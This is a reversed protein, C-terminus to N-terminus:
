QDRVLRVANKATQYGNFTAGGGFQVMWALDKDTQTGSWYWLRLPDLNPFADPNISPTCAMSVLSSLEDRTPLRWAGGAQKRAEAWTFEQVQGTCGEGDQWAQGLSCRQWTLGTQKDLVETGNIDYRSTPVAIRDPDCAAWAAGTALTALVCGAAINKLFAM